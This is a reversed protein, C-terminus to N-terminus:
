KQLRMEDLLPRSMVLVYMTHTVRWGIDDLKPNQMNVYVGLDKVEWEQMPTFPFANIMAVSVKIHSPLTENTYHRTQYKGVNITYEDPVAWMPVRYSGTLYSHPIPVFEERDMPNM